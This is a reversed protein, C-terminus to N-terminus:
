TLKSRQKYEEKCGIFEKHWDLNDGRTILKAQKTGGQTRTHQAM